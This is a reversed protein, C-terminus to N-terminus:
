HDNKAPLYEVQINLVNITFCLVKDLHTGFNAYCKKANNTCFHLYSPFMIFFSVQDHKKNKCQEPKNWFDCNNLVFNHSIDCKKTKTNQLSNTSIHRNCSFKYPWCIKTNIFDQHIRNHQQNTFLILKSHNRLLHDTYHMHYKELIKPFNTLLSIFSIKRFHETNKSINTLNIRQDTKHPM